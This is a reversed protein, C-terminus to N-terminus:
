YRLEGKAALEIMTKGPVLYIELRRNKERNSMSNNVYLPESAGMSYPIVYDCTAANAQFWALVALVRKSTLEDTYAETGTNDSHMALLMRYMDTVKLFLLYPRLYKGANPRLVTDNPLFLDDSAITAIVVEGRRMTEINGGAAVLKKAQIQQYEKIKDRQSGLNPIAVNDDLSLEYLQELTYDKAPHKKSKEVTKKGPQQVESDQEVTLTDSTSKEGKFFNKVANAGRQFINDDAHLVSAGSCFMFIAFAVIVHRCMTKRM